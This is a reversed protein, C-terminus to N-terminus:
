VFSINICLKVNEARLALRYVACAKYNELYQWDWSLVCDHIFSYQLNLVWWLIPTLLCGSSKVDAWCKVQQSNTLKLQNKFYLIIIKRFMM